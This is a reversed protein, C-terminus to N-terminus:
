FPAEASTAVPREKKSNQINKIEQKRRHRYLESLYFRFFEILNQVEGPEIPIRFTQNGNRTFVIGFAPVQITKDGSKIQKDWPTLKISTKNEDFTHFTSYEHRGSFASIMGGVEFENFKLNINKDPDERNGSFSGTKRKDDWSHQQIASIYIVPEQQKNVGTKFSFACGSNKSNPKYLAISM